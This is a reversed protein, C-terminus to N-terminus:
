KGDQEKIIQLYNLVAKGQKSIKPKDFNIYESKKLSKCYASFHSHLGPWTTHYFQCNTIFFKQFADLVIHEELWVQMMCFKHVNRNIWTHLKEDEISEFKEGGIWFGEPKTRSSNKKSATITSHKIVPTTSNNNSQKDLPTNDANKKEIEGEREEEIEIEIEIEKKQGLLQTPLQTPLQDKSAAAEKAGESRTVYQKVSEDLWESSVFGSRSITFMGSEHLIYHLMEENDTVCRYCFKSLIEVNSKFGEQRSLFALMKMTVGIGENPYHIDITQWVQESDFNSSVKFWPIAKKSAM